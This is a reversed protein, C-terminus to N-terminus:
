VKENRLYNVPISGLLYYTFLYSSNQAQYHFTFPSYQEVHCLCPVFFIDSDEVPISGMVEWVGSPHVSSHSSMAM